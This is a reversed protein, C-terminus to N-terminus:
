EAEEGEAEQKPQISRSNDASRYLPLSAKKSVDSTPNKLGGFWELLYAIMEQGIFLFMLARSSYHKCESIGHACESPRPGSLTNWSEFFFRLYSRASLYCGHQGGYM